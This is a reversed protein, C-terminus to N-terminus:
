NVVEKTNIEFTWPCPNESFFKFNIGFNNYAYGVCSELPQSWVYDMNRKAEEKNGILLTTLPTALAERRKV